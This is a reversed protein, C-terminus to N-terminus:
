DPTLGYPPLSSGKSGRSVSEDIKCEDRSLTPSDWWDDTGIQNTPIDGVERSERDNCNSDFVIRPRARANILGTENILTRTTRSREKLPPVASKRITITTVTIVAKLSTLFASQLFVNSLSSSAPFRKM